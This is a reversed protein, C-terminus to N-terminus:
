NLVAAFRTVGQSGTDLEGNMLKLFIIQLGPVIKFVMRDAYPLQNGLTDVKWYYPNREYVIHQGHVWETPM